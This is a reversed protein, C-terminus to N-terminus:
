KVLGEDLELQHYFCDNDDKFEPKFCIYYAAEEKGNVEEYVINLIGKRELSSLAGRCGPIEDEDIQWGIFAGHKRDVYDDIALGDDYIYECSEEYFSGQTFILQLCNFELTTLRLGSKLLYENLTMDETKLEELFKEAEEITEREVEEKNSDEELKPNLVLVLNHNRWLEYSKSENNLWLNTVPKSELSKVLEYKKM